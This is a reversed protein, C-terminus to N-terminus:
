LDDAADVADIAKQWESNDMSLESWSIKINTYGGLDDYPNSLTVSIGDDRIHAEVADLHDNGRVSEKQEARQKAVRIYWKTTQAAQKISEKDV